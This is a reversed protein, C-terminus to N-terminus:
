SGVIDAEQSNALDAYSKQFCKGQKMSHNDKNEVINDFDTQGVRKKSSVLTALTSIHSHGM